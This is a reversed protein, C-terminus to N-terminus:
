ICGHIAGLLICSFFCCCCSSTASGRTNSSNSSGCRETEATCTNVFHAAFWIGWQSVRLHGAWKARATNNGKLVWKWFSIVWRAGTQKGVSAPRRRQAPCPLSYDACALGSPTCLFHTNSHCGLRTGRHPASGFCKGNKVAQRLQRSAPCARLPEAGLTIAFTLFNITLWKATEGFPKAWM